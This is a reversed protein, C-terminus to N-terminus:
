SRGLIALRQSFAPRTCLTLLGQSVASALGELVVLIDIVDLPDNHMGVQEIRFPEYVVKATKGDLLRNRAELLHEPGVHTLVELNDNLNGSFVRVEKSRDLEDLQELL